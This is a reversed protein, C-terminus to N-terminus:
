RRRLNSVLLAIVTVLYIQGTLTELVALARGGRTAATFDGFGTTTLSTFSFYVQQSTTGDTGQAFYLGGHLRAAVGIAIAFVIGLLLYVALAGGVAQPTVGQEVLLRVLGRVLEELTVLLLLGALLSGVWGPVRDVAVALALLVTVAVLTGGVRRRLGLPSRSTVVVTLLMAGSLLLAVARSGAREPALVLFVVTVVALLLVVGYRHGASRADLPEMRMRM